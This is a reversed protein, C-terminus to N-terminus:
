FSKIPLTDPAHTLVAVRAEPGQRRFAERLAEDMDRAHSFGLREKDERPIGPSVLIVPAKERVKAWAVALATAVGNKIEGARYAREIRHSSWATFNLLGKHVPSVGEPAPTLVIITGGPKVMRAAPYLAKHSQWFDIDCPCSNAIVVDPQEYFPVGYIETALKVGAQFARRMEGFFVGAVQGKPNLVVNLITKMGVRQAMDDMDRRVPNDELGLLSDEGRTSLLHTEATTIAGCIGPQVIKSSGSFGPIHHPVIAGLGILLDAELAARNVWLPTGQSSTGLDALQEPDRWDHNFVRFAEYVRHGVKTRMEEQSMARHTGLAMLISIRHKPVGAKQLAGLLPPLLRHAPTLRTNDDSLILVRDSPRVWDWLPPQGLPSELAKQLAGELDPLPKWDRPSLVQALNYDRIRVPIRRGAFPLKVSAMRSEKEAKM